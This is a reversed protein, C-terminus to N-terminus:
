AQLAEVFTIDPCSAPFNWISSTFRGLDLYHRQNTSAILCYYKSNQVRSAMVVNRPSSEQLSFTGFNASSLMAQDSVTYGSDSITHSSVCNEATKRGYNALCLVDEKYKM